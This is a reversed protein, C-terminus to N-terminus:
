FLSFGNRIDGRKLYNEIDAMIVIFEIFQANGKQKQM